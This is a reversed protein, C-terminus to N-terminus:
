LMLNKAVTVAELAGPIRNQVDIRETIVLEGTEAVVEVGVLAAFDMRSSSFVVHANLVVEVQVNHESIYRAVDVAAERSTAVIIGSVLQLSSPTPQLQQMLLDYTADDTENCDITSALPVSASRSTVLELVELEENEKLKAAVLPIAAACEIECEFLKPNDRLTAINVDWEENLDEPLLVLVYNPLDRSVLLRPAALTQVPWGFQEVDVGEPINIAITRAPPVRLLCRQLHQVHRISTAINDLPRVHVRGPFYEELRGLEPSLAATWSYILLSCFQSHLLPQLAPLALRSGCVLIFLCPETQADVCLNIDYSLEAAIDMTSRHRKLAHRNVVRIERQPAAISAWLTDSGPPTIGYIYSKSVIRSNAVANVLEGMDLRYSLDSRHPFCEVSAWTSLDDVFIIAKLPEATDLPDHLNFTLIGPDDRPVFDRKVLAQSYGSDSNRVHLEFDEAPLQLKRSVALYLSEEFDVAVIAAALCGHGHYVTIHM